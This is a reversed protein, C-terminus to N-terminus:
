DGEGGLDFAPRGAREAADLRRRLEAARARSEDAVAHEGAREALEAREQWCDIAIRLHEPNM